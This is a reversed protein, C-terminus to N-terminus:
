THTCPYAHPYISVCTPLHICMNTLPYVHSYISEICIYTPLQIYHICIHRPTYVPPFISDCTPLQVCMNTSTYVSKPLYICVDSSLVCIPLHICMHISSYMHTYISVSKPLISMDTSLYVLAYISVSTILHICIQTSPCLPHM